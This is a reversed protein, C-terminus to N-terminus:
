GVPVPADQGSHFPGVGDGYRRVFPQKL